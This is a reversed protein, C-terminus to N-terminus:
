RHKTALLSKQFAKESLQAELGQRTLQTAIM